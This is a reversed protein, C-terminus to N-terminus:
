GTAGPSAVSTTTTTTTTTAEPATTGAREAKAEAYLQQIGRRGAATAENAAIVGRMMMKALPRMGRGAVTVVAAAGVAAMVKEDM